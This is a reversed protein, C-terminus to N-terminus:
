TIYKTKHSTTQYTEHATNQKTNHATIHKIHHSIIFSMGIDRCRLNPQIYVVKSLLDSLVYHNLPHRFTNVSRSCPWSLGPALCKTFIQCFCLNGPILGFNNRRWIDRSSCSFCLRLLYSITLYLADSLCLCVNLGACLVCVRVRLCECADM